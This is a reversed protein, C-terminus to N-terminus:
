VAADCSTDFTRLLYVRKQVPANPDAQSAGECDTMSVPLLWIWNYIRYSPTCTGLTLTPVPVKGVPHKKYRSATFQTCRIRCLQSWCERLKKKSVEEFDLEFLLMKINFDCSFV